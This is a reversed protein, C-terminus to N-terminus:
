SAPEKVISAVAGQSLGSLRTKAEMTLSGIRGPMPM